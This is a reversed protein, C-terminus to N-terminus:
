SRGEQDKFTDTLSAWACVLKSSVTRLRPDSNLSFLDRYRPSDKHVMLYITGVENRKKEEATWRSTDDWIRTLVGFLQQLNIFPLKLIHKWEQKKGNADIEWQDPYFNILPSTKELM